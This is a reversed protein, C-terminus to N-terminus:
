HAREGVQFLGPKELLGLWGWSAKGMLLCLCPPIVFLFKLLMKLRSLIAIAKSAM